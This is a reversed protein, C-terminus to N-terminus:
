SRSKCPLLASPMRILVVYNIKCNDTCTSTQTEFLPQPHCGTKHPSHDMLAATVGCGLVWGQVVWSLPACKALAGRGLGTVCIPRNQPCLNWDLMRVGCMYSAHPLLLAWHLLVGSDTLYCSFVLLRLTWSASSPSYLHLHVCICANHKKGAVGSWIDCLGAFREALYFFGADLAFVVSIPCVM